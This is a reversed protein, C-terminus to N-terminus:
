ILYNFNSHKGVYNSFTINSMLFVIPSLYSIYSLDEM